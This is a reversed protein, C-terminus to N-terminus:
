LLIMGLLKSTLGPRFDPVSLFYRLVRHFFLFIASWFALGLVGFFALLATERRDLRRLRNGAARWRPSLLLWWQRAAPPLGKSSPEASTVREFTPAPATM